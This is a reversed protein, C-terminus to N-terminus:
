GRLEDLLRRFGGQRPDFRRPRNRRITRVYAAFSFLVGLLIVVAAILGPSLSEGASLEVVILVVTLPAVVAVAVLLVLWCGWLLPPMGALFLTRPNAAAVRGVLADVFPRFTAGRDEFKALGAFHNSSLVVPRGGRRRIVCREFAPAATGGGVRLGPAHYIRISDIGAFPISRAVGNEVRHLAADGLRWTEEKRLLSLRFRYVPDAM